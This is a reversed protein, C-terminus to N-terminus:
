RVPRAAASRPPRASREVYPDAYGLGALLRTELREMQTAEDARDHQYGQAHLTGHIVLHALHARLTKGQARAERAVVPLCLVIDAQVPARRRYDFTLVNTAYDRGRFDRNLRRGERADVFRLTLYADGQLARGIWRRLTSAAPLGAFADLGQLALRLRPRRAGRARQAARQRTRRAPATM